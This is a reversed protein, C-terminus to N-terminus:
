RAPWVSNELHSDDMLKGLRQAIEAHEGAINTTEAPDATLNYLAMPGNVGARIGKWPGVRIAQAFGGDHHEWYLLRDGMPAATFAPVLSNGDLVAPGGLSGPLKWCNTLEALTPLVDCAGCAATAVADQPMARPLSIILPARLGGDSLTGPEGTYPGNSDFFEWVGADARSSVDGAFVVLTNDDFGLEYLRRMIRGIDEDMETVMAAFQKAEEPWDAESYASLDRPENAAAVPLAFDIQLFFPRDLSQRSLFAIADQTLLSQADSAFAGEANGLFEVQEANRWLNPPYYAQSEIDGLSGFSYDFGQLNPIGSTGPEGLSWAGVYGTSYGGFWMVEALTVADTELPIVPDNGRISLHGTHTGTAFAANAPVSSTGGAYYNSFRVGTEALANLVPTKIDATPPEWNPFERALDQRYIGLDAIGLGDSTILLVNPQRNRVRVQRNAQRIATRLQAKVGRWQEDADRFEERLQARQENLIDRQEDTLESDDITDLMASLGEFLTRPKPRQDEDQVAQNNNAGGFEAQVLGVAAILLLLAGLIFLGRTAM